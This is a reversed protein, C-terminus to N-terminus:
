LGIWINKPRLFERVGYIGGLRGYGSVRTGGFPAAAPIGTFGNVWVNGAVLAHSVRHARKLNETWCYAALGFATGNALAIAEEESDFRTVALVPGFVETQALESDPPVDAFVTPQIFYGEAMEGSIRGGGAILRSGQEHARDIMGMIRTLARQDVVPGVATEDNFPDGVVLAEASTGLRRLVEDYIRSQVLLRTPNICGQGANNVIGSLALPDLSDLDADDFIISASKGGLELHVPVLNKAASALIHHAVAGSGTFHIKGVCPHSTLAEGAEPGGPVINVVGPPFGAELFLEGLRLAAYPALEPPKAVVCNGAALVPALVMGMAYVPGNWPIIVAVVGYPEDLTYDLAPAPWTSIVEGGVKDAWGANYRFLDAAVYPGYRATRIAISNDIISLKTLEDAHEELLDAFRLLLNRRRDLPMAAWSPAAASAVNVADDIEKPGALPIERTVRGTAAYVHDHRGGSVDGVRRDGILLKTEPLIELAPEAIM